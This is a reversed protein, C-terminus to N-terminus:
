ARMGPKRCAPVPADGAALEEYLVSTISGTLKPTTVGCGAPAAMDMPAFCTLVAVDPLGAAGALRGSAIREFLEAANCPEGLLVIRTNCDHIERVVIRIQVKWGSPLRQCRKICRHRSM